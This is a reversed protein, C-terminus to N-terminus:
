NDPAGQNIWASVKSITCDDLKGGGQPMPSYGSEQKIAGLLRGNEVEVIVDAYNDLVVSGLQAASSHCVNCYQAFVPAIDQSFSMATTDCGGGGGTTDYVYTTDRVILNEEVDYYCGPLISVALLTVLGVIGATNIIRRVMM